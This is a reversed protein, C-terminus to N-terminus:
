SQNFLDLWHFNSCLIRTTKHIAIRWQIMEASTHNTPKGDKARHGVVGPHHSNIREGSASTGVPWSRGESPTYPLKAYWSHMNLILPITDKASHPPTIPTQFWVKCESSLSWEVCDRKLERYVLNISLFTRWHWQQPQNCIDALSILSLWGNNKWKLSIVWGRGM